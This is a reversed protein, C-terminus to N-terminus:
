WPWTYPSTRPKQGDGAGEGHHSLPLGGNVADDRTWIGSGLERVFDALRMQMGTRPEAGYGHAGTNESNYYCNWM